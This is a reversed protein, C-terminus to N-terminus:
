QVHRPRLQETKIPNQFCQSQKRAWADALMGLGGGAWGDGARYGELQTGGNECQERAFPKSACKRCSGGADNPLASMAERSGSAAATALGDM